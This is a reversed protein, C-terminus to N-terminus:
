LTAEDSVYLIGDESMSQIRALSHIQVGEAELEKRGPQFSKEIVIGVGVLTAGAQLIIDRLGRLAVGTALFDDIVLIRDEASLYDKSVTLHYSEQRTFSYVPASYVGGTQTLAKKKKAYVFPVGLKLATAFALHIGSAEITVVKTINQGGFHNAFAQGIEMIFEPDVQHNIFSDVKLIQDSVVLGEKAIKDHLAKM